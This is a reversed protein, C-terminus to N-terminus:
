FSLEPGVITLVKDTTIGNPAYTMGDRTESSINGEHATDGQGNWTASSSLYELVLIAFTSATSFVMWPNDNFTSTTISRHPSPPPTPVNPRPNVPGPRRPGPSPPPNPYPLQHSGPETISVSVPIPLLQQPSSSRIQLNLPSPPPTPVPPPQPPIPGPRPGPPTPPPNPLATPKNLIKNPLGLDPSRSDYPQQKNALAMSPADSTWIAKQHQSHPSLVFM